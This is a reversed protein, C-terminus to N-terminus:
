AVGGVPECLWELWIAEYSAAECFPEETKVFFTEIVDFAREIGGAACAREIETELQKKAQASYEIVIGYRPPFSAKRNHAVREIVDAWCVQTDQRAPTKRNFWM